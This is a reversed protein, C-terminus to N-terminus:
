KQHIFLKVPEVLHFTAAIAVTALLQVSLLGYVKRVFGLRIEKDANAVNNRYSFDDQLYIKFYWEIYYINKQKKNIVDDDESWSFSARKLCGNTRKEVMNSNAQLRVPHLKILRPLLPQRVKQSRIVQLLQSLDM